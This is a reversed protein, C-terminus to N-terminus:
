GELVVDPSDVNLRRVIREKQKAPVSKSSLYKEFSSIRHM